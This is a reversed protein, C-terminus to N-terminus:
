RLEQDVITCGLLPTPVMTDTVDVGFNERLERACSEVTWRDGQQIAAVCRRQLYLLAQVSQRYRRNPTDFSFNYFAVPHRWEGYNEDLYREADDPIWVDVEHLRSRVLEFPTNWWEHIQTGHWILGEAEYHRFVDVSFGSPDIAVIKGDGQKVEFGATSLARALVGHDAGGPLTGLDIDYDHEMLQGERILGLLTGSVLFPREGISAMAAISRRLMDIQVSREVSVRDPDSSIAARELRPRVDREVYDAAESLDVPEELAFLQRWLVSNADPHTELYPRLAAASARRATPATIHHAAPFWNPFRGNGQVARAWMLMELTRKTERKDSGQIAESLVEEDAGIRRVLVGAVSVLGKRLLVSRDALSMTRDRVRTLLQRRSSEVAWVSRGEVRGQM